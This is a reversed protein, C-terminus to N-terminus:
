KNRRGEGFDDMDLTNIFDTFTSLRKLEDESINEGESIEQPIAKGSERDILLAAEDLVADEAFIPARARIALALADSPRADVEVQGGGTNLIIRGYFTDDRLDNIIISNVSAKLTGIVSWLLDHSLPRPVDVGQLKVAIADAEAPGIWIPLYREGAQEKLLVVRQYNMPSIGISEINVEIM